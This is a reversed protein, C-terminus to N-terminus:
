RKKPLLVFIGTLIGIVGTLLWVSGTTGFLMIVFAGMMPVIFRPLRNVTKFIGFFKERDRGRAADFFFMDTLPEILAGSIQWLIFIWLLTRGTAFSAWFSFAAFSLFGLAVWINIGTKKAIRGLPEALIIYPVIGATLVLGLTDKSFGAEIVMIPVYLLRIASLAYQGFNIMYARVLERRRFYGITTKWVSKMTRRTSIKPIRKDPQIIGFWKFYLLGLINFLAVAFFPTRIGFNKAMYMALIPALLAGMNIWFVYRGNLKEMGVGKSFDVMFLALLSTVLMQPVASAFDLAVFTAPKVSFAMMFYMAAVSLLSFTLLKAKSSLKLLEGSFLTILMFFVYYVSSYIGITASNHFIDLLVLAWVANIIGDSFGKFLGLNAFSFGNVRERVSLYKDAM